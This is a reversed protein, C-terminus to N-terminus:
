RPATGQRRKRIAGIIFVIAYHIVWPIAALAAWFPLLDRLALATGWRFSIRAKSASVKSDEAMRSSVETYTRAKDALWDKNRFNEPTEDALAAQRRTEEDAVELQAAKEEAWKPDAYHAAEEALSSSMEIQNEKKALWEDSRADYDKLLRMYKPMLLIAM